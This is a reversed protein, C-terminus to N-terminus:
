RAWRYEVVNELEIPHADKLTLLKRYFPDETTTPFMYDATPCNEIEFDPHLEIVCDIETVAINREHPGFLPLGCHQRIIREPRHTKFFDFDQILYETKLVSPMGFRFLYIVGTHEGRDIPRYSATGDAHREFRQTAFFLASPLDFALDLGATQTAYHQETRMLDYSFHLDDANRGPEGFAHAFHQLSRKERVVKAASYIHSDQRYIGSMISLECGDASARRPNPVRRNVWHERPQGRFTLSGERLYRARPETALLDHIDSISRVQERRLPPAAEFPKDGKLHAIFADTQFCSSLAKNGYFMDSVALNTGANGMWGRLYYGSDITAEILRDPIGAIKLHSGLTDQMGNTNETFAHDLSQVLKAM